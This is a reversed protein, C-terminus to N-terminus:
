RTEERSEVFNEPFIIRLYYGNCLVAKDKYLQAYKVKAIDSGNILIDGKMTYASIIAKIYNVLEENQTQLRKNEKMVTEFVEPEIGLPQENLKNELLVCDAIKHELTNDLDIYKSSIVWLAICTIVFCILIVIFYSINIM